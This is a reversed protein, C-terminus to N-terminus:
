NCLFRSFWSIGATQHHEILIRSLPLMMSEPINQVFDAFSINEYEVVCLNNRGSEIALFFVCASFHFHKEQSMLSIIYPFDKDVRSSFCKRSRFNFKGIVTVALDKVLCFEASAKYFEMVVAIKVAKKVLDTFHRSRRVDM